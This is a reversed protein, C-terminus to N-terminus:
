TTRLPNPVIERSTLVLTTTHGTNYGGDDKEVTPDEHRCPVWTSGGDLSYELTGGAPLSNLVAELTTYGGTEAPIAVAESNFWVTLVQKHGVFYSQDSFDLGEREIWVEAASPLGVQRGIEATADEKFTALVTGAADTARLQFPTPFM